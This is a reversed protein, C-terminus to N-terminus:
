LALVSIINSFLVRASIRSIPAFIILAIESRVSWTVAKVPATVVRVVAIVDSVASMSAANAANGADVSGATIAAVCAIADATAFMLVRVDPAAASVAFILAATGDAGYSAVM